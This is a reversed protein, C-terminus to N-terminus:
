FSPIPERRANRSASQPSIATDAYNHPRHGAIRAVRPEHEQARFVRGVHTGCGAAGRDHAARLATVRDAMGVLGRGNPDAGGIGDDRVHVHLVDDEVSATVQAHSANAHKMVNTLAEAVVFYASAEIEAGLRAAPLEVYVPM